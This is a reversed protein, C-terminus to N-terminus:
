GFGLAQQKFSTTGPAEGQNWGNRRVGLAGCGGEPVGEGIEM